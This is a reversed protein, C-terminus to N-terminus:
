NDPNISFLKGSIDTEKWEGKYDDFEDQQIEAVCVLDDNSMDIVAIFAKESGIEKVMKKAEELNESGYEWDDFDNEQVAYWIKKM